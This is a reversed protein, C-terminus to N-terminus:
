KLEVITRNFSALIHPLPQSEEFKLEVITRNFATKYLPLFARQYLSENKLHLINEDAKDDIALQLIM